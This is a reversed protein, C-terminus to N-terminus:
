RPLGPRLPADVACVWVPARMWARVCVCVCAWVRRQGGPACVCWEGWECTCGLVHCPLSLRTTTQHEQKPQTSHRHTVLVRASATADTNHTATHCSCSSSRCACAADRRSWSSYRVPVAAEPVTLRPSHSRSRSSCRAVVRARRRATRRRLANSREFSKLRFSHWRWSRRVATESGSSM